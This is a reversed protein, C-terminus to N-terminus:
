LLPPAPKPRTEANAGVGISNLSLAIGFPGGRETGLAPESQGQRM